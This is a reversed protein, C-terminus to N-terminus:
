APVVQIERPFSCGDMAHQDGCLVFRNMGSPRFQQRAARYVVSREGCFLRLEMPECGQCNGILEARFHQTENGGCTWLLASSNLQKSQVLRWNRNFAAFAGGFGQAAFQWAFPVTDLVKAWTGAGQTNTAAECDTQGSCQGKFFFSDPKWYLQGSYYRWVILQNLPLNGTAACLAGPVDDHRWNLFSGSSSVPIARITGPPCSTVPITPDPTTTTPVVELYVDYPVGNTQDSDNSKVVCIKGCANTGTIKVKATSNPKEYSLLPQSVRANGSHSVPESTTSSIIKPAGALVPVHIELKIVIENQDDPM